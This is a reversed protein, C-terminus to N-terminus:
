QQPEASRRHYRCLVVYQPKGAVQSMIATDPLTLIQSGFDCYTQVIDPVNDADIMGGIKVIDGEQCNGAGALMTGVAKCSREEAMASAGFIILAGAALSIRLM